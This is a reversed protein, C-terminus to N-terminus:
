MYFIPREMQNIENELFELYIIDYIIDIGKEVNM